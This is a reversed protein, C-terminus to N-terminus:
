SHTGFNSPNTAVGLVMPDTPNNWAGSTVTSEYVTRGDDLGVETMARDSPELVRDVLHPGYTAYVRERIRIQESDIDLISFYFEDLVVPAKTASDQIKFTLDASTGAWVVVVGFM